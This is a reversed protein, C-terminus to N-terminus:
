LRKGNKDEMYLVIEGRKLSKQIDIIRQNSSGRFKLTVDKLEEVFKGDVLVDCKKLLELKDNDQILQEFTYGSWTWITKTNTFEKRFTNVLLNSVELNQFPEGGLLSLGDYGNKYLKFVLMIENLTEKTFEKGGNFNWATEKNFCGECAHNCGQSFFSIRMGEGNVIDNYVINNYRM